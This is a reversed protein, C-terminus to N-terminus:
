TVVVKRVHDATRHVKIMVDASDPRQQKVINERREQLATLRDVSQQLYRQTVDAPLPPVAPGSDDQTGAQPRSHATGGFVDAVSHQSDAM